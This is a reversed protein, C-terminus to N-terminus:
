ISLDPGSTKYADKMGLFGKTFEATLEIVLRPHKSELDQVLMLNLHRYRLQLLAEPRNEM